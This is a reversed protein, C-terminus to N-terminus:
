LIKPFWNAIMVTLPDGQMVWAGAQELATGDNLRNIREDYHFAGVQSFLFAKFLMFGALTLLLGVTPFKRRIRTKQPVLLGDREVLEVYGQSLQRHKRNIGRVRKRFDKVQSETM